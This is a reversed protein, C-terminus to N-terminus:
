AARFYVGNLSTESSAGSTLVVAGTARVELRTTSTRSDVAAVSFPLDAPPRYGVPLTFVTSPVAGSKVTGQLHVLGAPDKYYGPTLYPAGYSVWGNLLSPITRAEPTAAAKLGAPHVARSSDTGGQTEAATALEVLGTRAETATRGSLRAPTVIRSADAGANTEEATALEAIGAAEESANVVTPAPVNGEVSALPVWQGENQVYIALPALTVAVMGELHTAPLEAPTNFAFYFDPQRNWGPPLQATTNAIVEKEERTLETM